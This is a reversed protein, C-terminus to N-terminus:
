KGTESFTGAEIGQAVNLMRQIADRIAPWEKADIAITSDTRGEQKVVVFPGGGEDDLSVRTAREDFIDADKPMVILAYPLTVYDAMPREQQTKHLTANGITEIRMMSGM